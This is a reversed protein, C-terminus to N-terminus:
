SHTGFYLTKVARFYGGCLKAMSKLAEVRPAIYTRWNLVIRRLAEIATRRDDPEDAWALVRAADFLIWPERDEALRAVHKIVDRAPPRMAYIATIAFRRVQEDEDTLLELIEPLDAINPMSFTQAADIADWSDFEPSRLVTLCAKLDPKSTSLQEAM